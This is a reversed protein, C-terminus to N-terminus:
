RSDADTSPNGPRDRQKAWELYFGFAGVAFGVAAVLSLGLRVWDGSFLIASVVYLIACVALCVAGFLWRRAKRRVVM